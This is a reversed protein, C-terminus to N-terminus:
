YATFKCNLKSYVIKLGTTTLSLSMSGNGDSLELILELNDKGKGLNVQGLNQSENLKSYKSSKSDFGFANLCNQM